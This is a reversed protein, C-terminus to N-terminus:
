HFLQICLFNGIDLWGQLLYFLVLLKRDSIGNHLICISPVDFVTLLSSLIILGGSSFGVDVVFIRKIKPRTAIIPNIVYKVLLFHCVRM